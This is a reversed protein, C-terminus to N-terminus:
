VVLEFADHFTRGYSDFGTVERTQCFGESRVFNL